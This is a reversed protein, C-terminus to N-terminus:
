RERGGKRQRLDAMARLIPVFTEAEMLGAMEYGLPASEAAGPSPALAVGAPSGRTGDSPYAAAAWDLAPRVRASIWGSGVLKREFKRLTSRRRHRTDGTLLLAATALRVIDDRARVAAEDWRGAELAHRVFDGGSEVWELLRGACFLADAPTFPARAPPAAPPWVTVADEVADVLMPTRNGQRLDDACVTWPELRVGIRAGIARARREVVDAAEDRQWPEIACVLLVDVDSAVDFDGRAKSGFLAAWLLPPWGDELLSAVLQRVARREERALGSRRATM